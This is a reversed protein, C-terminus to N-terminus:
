CYLRDLDLSKIPVMDNTDKYHLVVIRRILYKSAWRNDKVHLSRQTYAVIDQRPLTVMTVM